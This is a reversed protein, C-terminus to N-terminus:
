TQVWNIGLSKLHSRLDQGDIKGTMITIELETSIQCIGKVIADVKKDVSVENLLQDDIKLYSIPLNALYDFSSSGKGFDIIALHVGFELFPTMVKKVHNAHGSLESEAIEFVLPLNVGHEPFCKKCQDKAFNLLEELLKPRRVLDMSIQVFHIIKNDAQVMEVCRSITKKVVIYDIDQSLKLQSASLGYIDASIEKNDNTIIKAHAKEAVIEHNNNLNIVPTFDVEIKDHELAYEIHDAISDAQSIDFDGGVVKNRGTRKAEYLRADAMKVIEDCSDGDSFSAVGMSVSITLERGDSHIVTKHITTRLRDAVIMSQEMTMEPLVCLFEEGGWRGVIDGDRLFNKATKSIEILVDDGVSHGYNDNVHKFHDIDFLIVTYNQETRKSRAQERELEEETAGRNPLGTLKDHLADYKLSEAQQMLEGRMEELDAALGMVEPLNSKVDFHVDLEGSAIEHSYQRLSGLPNVLTHKLYFLIGFTCLVYIILLITTTLKVTNEYRSVSTKDYGIIIKGAMQKVKDQWPISVIYLSDAKKRQQIIENTMLHGFHSLQKGDMSVITIFEASKLIGLAEFESNSVKSYHREMVSLIFRTEKDMQDYYVIDGSQNAYQILLYFISPAIVAQLLFISFLLRCSLSSILEKFPNLIGM